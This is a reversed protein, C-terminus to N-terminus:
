FMFNIKTALEAAPSTEVFAQNTADVLININATM